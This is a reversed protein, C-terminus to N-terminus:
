EFMEEFRGRQNKQDNKQIKEPIEKVERDNTDMLTYNVKPPTKNGQKKM